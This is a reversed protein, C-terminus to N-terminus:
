EHRLAYAVFQQGDQAQGARQDRGLQGVHQHHEGIGHHHAQETRRLEGGTAQTRGAIGEHRDEADAHDGGHAVQDCDAMARIVGDTRCAEGLGPQPEAPAQRQGGAQQQPVEFRQQQVKALLRLVDFAAHAEEGGQHEGQGAVHAEHGQAAEGAGDAPGARYHRDADAARQGVEGEVVRQDVAPEAQRLQAQGADAQDGRQHHVDHGHQQGPVDGAVGGIGGVRQALPQEFRAQVVELLQQAQAQGDAAGIRHFRAQEGEGGQAHPRQAAHRQGRVLDRDHRHIHGEHHRHSNGVGHGEADALVIAGPPQLVRAAGPAQPDAEARAAHQGERRQEPHRRLPHHPQEEVAM